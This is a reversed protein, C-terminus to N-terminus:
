QIYSEYGQLIDNVQAIAIEFVEKAFQLDTAQLSFNKREVDYNVSGYLNNKSFSMQIRPPANEGEVEFEVNVNVGEIEGSLTTKKTQKETLM